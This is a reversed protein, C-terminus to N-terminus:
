QVIEVLELDYIVVSNPPVDRGLGRRGYGLESPIYLTWKSGPKLMPLAEKWAPLIRDGITIEAPAGEYSSDMAEGDLKKAVYHVKVLGGPKPSEGTGESLVKYQLGSPTVKVGENKANTELFQKSEEIARRGREERRKQFQERMMDGIKEGAASLQMDDLRFPRAGIADAFGLQAESADLGFEKAQNGLQRTIFVGAAYSTKDRETKIETSTEDEPSAPVEAAPAPEPEATPAAQEDNGRPRDGRGGRGGGDRGRMQGRLKLLAGALEDQPMAMDGGARVDDVAKAVLVKKLGMERVREEVERKAFSVGFAYSMDAISVEPPGPQAPTDQAFGPLSAGVLALVLTLRILRNM